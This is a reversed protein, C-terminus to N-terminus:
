RFDVFVRHGLENRDKPPLPFLEPNSDITQNTSTSDVVPSSTLRALLENVFGIGRARGIFHTLITLIYIKYGM